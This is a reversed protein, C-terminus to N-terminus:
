KFFNKLKVILKDVPNIFSFKVFFYSLRKLSKSKKNVSLKGIKISPCNKLLLYKDKKTRYVQYEDVLENLSDQLEKYEEATKLGLLDNIEIIEKAEHIDKLLNIIQEKM